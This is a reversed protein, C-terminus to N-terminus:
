DRHAAEAALHRRRETDARWGRQAACRAFVALPQFVVDHDFIVELRGSGDDVQFMIDGNNQGELGIITGSARVQGGDRIGGDASAARSTSISDPSPLGMGAVVVAANVNSLVKQGNQTAIVGLLRISDGAAVAGVVRIARISGTADLLHVTSDGFASWGNLARGQLVVSKGDAQTRAQTVTVTAFTIAAENANRPKLRWSTSGTAPVLVGAGTFSAGPVYPAANFLVNRDLVVELRGSTDDVGLVVDGNVTATDRIIANTIRVQGDARAGNSATAAVATTVLDIAPLGRAFAVIRVQVDVLALRGDTLGTTGLIQVSDGAIATSFLARVARIAGTQDAVHMTSDGFVTWGNLAIGDIYVRSGIPMTRAQAITVIPFTASVDAPSRPRLQWTSGTASPTLLGTMNVTAGPSFAELPFAVNRNLLVELRGSGDDVGVRRFNGLSSTDRVVAGAIRMQADGLRANDASSARQTSGSDAPPLGRAVGVVRATVDALVVRGNVVGTTGVLSVSDGAQVASPAVRM